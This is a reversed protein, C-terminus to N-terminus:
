GVVSSSSRSLTSTTPSSVIGPDAVANFVVSPSITYTAKIGGVLTYLVVGLPLLFTSAMIHM